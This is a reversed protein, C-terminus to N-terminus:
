RGRSFIIVFLVGLVAAIILIEFVGMGFVSLVATLHVQNLVSKV